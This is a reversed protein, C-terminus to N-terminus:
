KIILYLALILLVVLSINRWNINRKKKKHHFSYTCHSCFLEGRKAKNGCVPCFKHLELTEQQM